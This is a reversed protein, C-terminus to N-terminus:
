KIYKSKTESIIKDKLANMNLKYIPNSLTRRQFLRMQKKRHGITKDKYVM